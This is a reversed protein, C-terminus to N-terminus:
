RAHPPALSLLGCGYSKAPGVGVNIGEIFKDPDNIVLQGDYRVAEVTASNPTRRAVTRPLSLAIVDPQGGTTELAFGFQEGKRMLWAIQDETRRLPVRRGHRRVGDPGTKTDVKRTPNALLRFGYRQGQTLRDLLPRLDRTTAHDTLYGPELHDWNPEPAAQVYLLTPSNHAADVRWLVNFTARANTDAQPFAKMITRHLQNPNGLDRAVHRNAPNLRLRSLLTM